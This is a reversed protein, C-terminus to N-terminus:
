ARHSARGPLIVATAIIDDCVTWRGVLEYLSGAEVVPGPVMLRARFEPQHVDFFLEVDEFGLRRRALPFWAKYVAEKASFLLRGADAEGDGDALRDRERGHAVEELLGDPLPRNPEADIGLGVIADSRAVACARYGACHTISGVIGPPWRPEGDLGAPVAVAPVGLRGLAERACARGTVFERRRKEVARGLALCESPFLETERLDERTEAWAVEDPVLRELV